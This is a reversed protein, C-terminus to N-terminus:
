RALAELARLAEPRGERTELRRLGDLQASPDALQGSYPLIVGIKLPQQAQAASMMLLAAAIGSLRLLFHRM